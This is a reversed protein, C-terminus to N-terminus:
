RLVTPLYVRIGVPGPFFYAQYRGTTAGRPDGSYDILMTGVPKSYLYGGFDVITTTMTVTRNAPGPVGTLTSAMPPRGYDFSGAATTDPILDSERYNDLYDWGFLQYDFTTNGDGLGNWEAPLLWEMVNASYDTHIQFPSALTVEDTVLDIRVVAWVDTPDGGFFSGLNWNFVVFDDAGDEDVDLYLDFEAFYPQPTHWLGYSNIAVAVLDGHDPDEGGYDMGVLRVDGPDLQGAENPDHLMAPYASLSSSVPGSHELTAQLTLVAPNPITSNSSVVALESYPRPVAYFPVRLRHGALTQNEFTVFGYVEELSRLTSTFATADVTLTIGVTTSMGNGPVVLTDDSAGVTVAETISATRTVTGSQLAASMTFTHPVTDRNWLTVDKTLVAEDQGIVELGWSASVLDEDAIAVVPTTIARVADIRGAGQRPIEFGSALDVATNMLAAKVQEPTWEPHAQRMLAAVGAVHPSSMSTGGYSIGDTGTGIDAAFISGGPATVDPKLRSDFGRPGRASFTAIADVFAGEVFELQKEHANTMVVRVEDPGLATKLSEGVEHPTSYAPVQDSGSILLDFGPSEDAILVGIAGANVANGSRATSGACSPETWDLLVVNGSILETNTVTFPECGTPQDEPYVLTGTIPLEASTWDYLVSQLGPQVGAVETPTIVEFGDVVSVGDESAAASIATDASGPSDLIYSTDGMNGAAAVVVIGAASANDTAAVSPDNPDAPGYFSGLSMNIVQPYGHELYHATAWDIADVTLNTSGSEGFVKLAILNAAPAVGTMVEGAQIGAAISAVHTGHFMEDLPDDDPNPITSGSEGSADYNTGAFDTGTIVKTTPFSGEEVIDPSNDRYDAPDGSGGFNAHTYDTGSDIVAITVGEGRYGLDEWVRPAGILPVSTGLAPRHEPARHIAKVEPLDRIEDLRDLPVRALFGNYAATYHSMITVSEELALLRSEVDRQIRELTEVYAGREAAQMELQGSARREVVYAALPPQALEIVMTAQEGEVTSKLAQPVRGSREVFEEATMGGEFAARIEVPVLERHPPPTPPLQQAVPARESASAMRASVPFGTLALSCVLAFSLLALTGKKM